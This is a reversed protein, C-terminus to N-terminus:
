AARKRKAAPKELQAAMDVLAKGLAYTPQMQGHRIRNITSQRAGVSIAIAQETMGATRLRAIAESPNM